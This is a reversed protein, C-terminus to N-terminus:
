LRPLATTGLPIQPACPVNMAEETLPWSRPPQGRCCNMGDACFHLAAMLADAPSPELLSWPSDKQDRRAEPPELQGQASPWTSGRHRALAKEEQATRKGESSVQWQAELTWGPLGPDDCRLGSNLRTLKCTWAKPPPGIKQSWPALLHGAEPQAWNCPSRPSTVLNSGSAGSTRGLGPGGGRHALLGSLLLCSSGQRHGPSAVPHVDQLSSRALCPLAKGSCLVCHGM